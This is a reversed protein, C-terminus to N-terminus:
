KLRANVTCPVEMEIVEPVVAAISVPVVLM